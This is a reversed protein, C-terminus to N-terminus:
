ALMPIRALVIAPLVELVWQLQCPWGDGWLKLQDADGDCQVVDGSLNFHGSMALFLPCNAVAFAVCM